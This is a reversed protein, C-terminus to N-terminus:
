VFSVRMICLRSAVCRALDGLYLLCRHVSLAVWRVEKRTQKAASTTAAGISSGARPELSALMQRASDEM